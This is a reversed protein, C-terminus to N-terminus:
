FQSSSAGFFFFSYKEEFKRIKKWWSKASSESFGNIQTWIGLLFIETFRTFNHNFLLEDLSPLVFFNFSNWNPLFLSFFNANKITFVTLKGVSVAESPAFLRFFFFHLKVEFCFFSSHVFFISISHLEFPIVFAWVFCLCQFNIRIWLFSIIKKEELREFAFDVLM